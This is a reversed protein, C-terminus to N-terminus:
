GRHDPGPSVRRAGTPPKGQDAPAAAVPRIRGEASAMWAIVLVYLLQGAVFAVVAWLLSLGVSAGGVWLVIGVGGSAAVLGLLFVPFKM